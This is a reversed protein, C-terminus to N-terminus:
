MGVLLLEMQEVVDGVNSTFLIEPPHIMTTWQPKLKCEMKVFLNLVKELLQQNNIDRRKHLTKEVINAM